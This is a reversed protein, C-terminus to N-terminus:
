LQPGRSSPTLVELPLPRRSSHILVELLKQLLSDPTGFCFPDEIDDTRSLCRSSLFLERSRLSCYLTFFSPGRLMKIYIHLPYLTWKRLYSLVLSMAQPALSICGGWPAHSHTHVKKQWIYHFPFRRVSCLHISRQSPRGWSLFLYENCYSTGRFSIFTDWLLYRRPPNLAVFTSELSVQLVFRLISRIKICSYASKITQVGSSIPLTNLM